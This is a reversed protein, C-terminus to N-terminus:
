RCAWASMASTSGHIVVFFELLEEDSLFGLPLASALNLRARPHFGQSYRVPLRSRRLAREWLRQLDLHGIFRLSEGKAYRIRIRTIQDNMMSM